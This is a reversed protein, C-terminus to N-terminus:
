EWDILPVDWEPGATWDWDTLPVDWQPGIFKGHNNPTSSAGAPRHVGYRCEECRGVVAESAPPMEGSICCLGQQEGQLSYNKAKSTGNAEKGNKGHKKIHHSGMILCGYEKFGGASPSM